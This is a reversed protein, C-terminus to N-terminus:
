REARPPQKEAIVEQCCPCSMGAMGRQHVENKCTFYVSGSRLTVCLTAKENCGAFQCTLTGAFFARHNSDHFYLDRGGHHLKCPRGDPLVKAEKGCGCACSSMTAKEKTKDLRLM